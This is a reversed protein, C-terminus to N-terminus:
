EDQEEHFRWPEQDRLQDWEKALQYTVEAQRNHCKDVMSKTKHTPSVMRADDIAELAEKVALDIEMRKIIDDETGDIPRGLMYNTKERDSAADFINWESKTWVSKLRLLMNNTIRTYGTCRNLIHETTEHEGGDCFACNAELESGDGTHNGRLILAGLRATIMLGVQRRTGNTLRWKEGGRLKEYDETEPRRPRNKILKELRSKAIREAAENITRKAQPKNTTDPDMEWGELM